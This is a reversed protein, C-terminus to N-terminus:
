PVQRLLQQYKKNGPELAVAKEFEKKALTYKKLALYALGLNAHRRPSEPKERVAREFIETAKSYNGVEMEVVGLRNLLKPYDPKRAYLKEFMEKAEQFKQGALRREGEKFLEDFSKVGHSREPKAFKKIGKPLTFPLKTGSFKLFVVYFILALGVITVVEAIM